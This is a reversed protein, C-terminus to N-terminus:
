PGSDQFSAGTANFGHAGLGSCFSGNDDCTIEGNRYFAEFRLERETGPNDDCYTERPVCVVSVQADASPGAFAMVNRTKFNTSVFYSTRTGQSALQYSADYTEDGAWMAIPADDLNTLFIRGEVPEAEPSCPGTSAAIVVALATGARLPM